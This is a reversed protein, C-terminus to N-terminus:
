FFDVDASPSLPAATLPGRALEGMATRLVEEFTVGDAIKGSKLDREIRQVVPLFEREKYGLNQLASKLDGLEQRVKQARQGQANAGSLPGKVDPTQASWSTSMLTKLTTSLSKELKPKLELLFKKASQLGIGQVQALMVANEQEVMEVIQFVTFTSMIALAIKPGLRSVGLLLAFIQREEFAAFGFLRMSDETIHTYVWLEVQSGEIVQALSATAM